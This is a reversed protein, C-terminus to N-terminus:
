LFPLRTFSFDQVSQPTLVFVAVRQTDICSVLPNIWDRLLSIFGGFQGMSTSCYPIQCIFATWLFFSCPKGDSYPESVSSNKKIFSQVPFLVASHSM